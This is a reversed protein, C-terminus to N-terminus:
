PAAVIGVGNAVPATTTTAAQALSGDDGVLFQVLQSQGNSGRVVVAIRNVNSAIDIPAGDTHAATPDELIVQGGTVVLRSHSHSPSNSTFAYAGVLAIWCPAVM